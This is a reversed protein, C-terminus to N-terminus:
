AARERRREICQLANARAARDAELVAELSGANGSPVNDLVEQDVQAIGTFPLRGNLFADVAIENAANLIAPATGGSALASYALALCPFRQLDPVEFDLRGIAALDLPSAGSDIRAPYALAYAIPIRMDPNGLQAITSGDVYEVMSHIVSQPHIVVEIRSPEVDFLWRAEIVELGKNMMTASDVSIKRGMVWNPHACAEDPTVSRLKEATATRFPGGSATLVIRRVESM